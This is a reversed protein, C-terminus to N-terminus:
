DGGEQGLVAATISWREKESQCLGCDDHYYEHDHKHPPNLRLIEQKLEVIRECLQINITHLRKVEDQLQKIEKNLICDCTYSSCDQCHGEKVVDPTSDPQCAPCPYWANESDRLERIERSGGCTSCTDSLLALTEQAEFTQQKAICINCMCDDHCTREEELMQEIANLSEELLEVAKDTKQKSMEVEMREALKNATYTIQTQLEWLRNGDKTHVGYLRELFLALIHSDPRTQM